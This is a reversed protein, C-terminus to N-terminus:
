SAADLFGTDGKGARVVAPTEGQLDIITTLVAEGPGGDIVLDLDHGLRSRVEEPDRLPETADPLVLTTTLLPAGVAALLAQAIPNAPVRIGITRRRPHLLRKPVERSATLLFTYPGPTHAKMLRFSTNDVEAYSAIQSLDRCAISFRHGSPLRRIAAIRDMARRDGLRCGLAYASDTPYAIVGGEDVVAAARAILRPQPNEPHISLYQSM